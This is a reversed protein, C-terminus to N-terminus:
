KASEAAEAEAELEAMGLEFQEANPVKHHWSVEDAMYSIGQGKNTRAIVCKPKGAVATAPSLATCIARLDHGDIGEVAWGFAEMKPALPALNITEALRAGQQLRNHDVILTLNDLKFQAAAMIAEWNSGEQLEGDGTVVFTRWQANSLKAAVAMGVGVPM